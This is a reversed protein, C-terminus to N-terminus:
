KDLPVEKAPEQPLVITFTSGTGFLSKLYIKGGHAQVIAKVISLGLGAGESRRRSTSVRAFREFIRKQDDTAIGEGTDQVWFRVKGKSIGSGISITDSEQTHQTANQALNMVAQTLRQRDVVMTGTASADFQWNRPALGKAKTFLEDTLTAIDVVDLKLFDPRETKALLILDDVFRSM